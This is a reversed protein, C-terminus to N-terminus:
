IHILSLDNVIDWSWTGISGAALTSSLREQTERLAVERQKRETIDRAIKSAGIIEGQGDRIPSLTVSVDIRRGSKTMRVTEFHDVSEGRRTRALIEAEEGILEPPFLMLMSKGICEKAAYGFLKEAGRNWSTIVGDVTKSIIADDSSEVITAFRARVEEAKKRETIDTSYVRLRKTEPIYTITQSFFFKEASIERRVTDTERGILTM